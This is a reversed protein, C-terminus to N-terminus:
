TAKIPRNIQLSNVSRGNCGGANSFVILKNDADVHLGEGCPRAIRLMIARQTRNTSLRM